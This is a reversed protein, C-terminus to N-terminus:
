SSRLSCPYNARSKDTNLICFKDNKSCKTASRRQHNSKYFSSIRCLYRNVKREWLNVEYADYFCSLFIKSGDFHVEINVKLSIKKMGSLFASAIVDPFKKDALRSEPLVFSSDWRAPIFIKVPLRLVFLKCCQQFGQLVPCFKM